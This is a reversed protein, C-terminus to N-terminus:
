LKVWAIYPQSNSGFIGTNHSSQAGPDCITSGHYEKLSVHYYWRTGDNAPAGQLVMAYWLKVISNGYHKQWKFAFVMLSVSITGHKKSM